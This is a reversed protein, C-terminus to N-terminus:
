VNPHVDGKFIGAGPCLGFALFGTAGAIRAVSYDAQDPYSAVIFAASSLIGAILPYGSKRRLSLALLATLLSMMLFVLHLGGEFITLLLIGLNPDETAIGVIPYVLRGQVVALVLM